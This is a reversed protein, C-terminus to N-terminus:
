LYELRGVMEEATFVAHVLRLSEVMEGVPRRGRPFFVIGCHAQGAYHLDVYDADITVTVRAHAAAHVLHAEDSAGMLGAERTTEVEIHFGRLARAVAGPMHEDFHYRVEAL